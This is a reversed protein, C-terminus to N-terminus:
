LFSTSVKSKNIISRDVVAKMAMGLAGNVTVDLNQVGSDAPTGAMM